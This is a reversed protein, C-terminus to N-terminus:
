TGLGMRRLIKEFRADSRLADLRRDSKAFITLMGSRSDCAKELWALAQDQEGLGAYILAVSYADVPGHEALELLERLLRRAETEAGAVAQAHALPAAAFPLGGMVQRATELEQIAEDFKSEQEYALGLWLRLLPYDPDLDLSELCRDIAQAYRRGVLSIMATMHRVIPSVPELEVARRSQQEAEEHRGCFALVLGFWYPAVWYSPDLEIARQFEKEAAAWDWDGFARLFALSTRGEALEPDLAVSAAAAAKAKAWGERPPFVGYITLLSYCDALGSYALAYGPDKEIAQQFYGVGKKMGDPTRKTWYYRGKLYLQYAESNETFRKALREKEEGSLKMRLSESIKRAIEEELAFIDALKRNYREGWLQAGEVVDVLETGVVLAEGRQIVRGTLVVRVNLERGAAQPDVDQGKYRFVTSRPTVRLQALKALSNIISETIGDSLYEADPDRSANAFPLVAISSIAKGSEPLPGQTPAASGSGGLLAKLDYALDRASQFREEPNKELCHSILRDIEIPIQTGSATLEKPADRLIASMTEMATKGPFARRGSVMEYLVCGLSFIDSGPGVPAGRVQEPSMYGATGMVTGAATKAAAATEAQPSILPKFRALGFDLLKVRGDSTLFINEPKLDRHIIEKSHAAAVGNALAIGTEAAKRWAMVGRTLRARLTEGELLETVVYSVGQETGVDFIALINPHSLAAVAKAEREFRALAEPDKALHEPLVKIAVERGLRPDRARYVEGMGGAGIPGLIEYPGLRAGAELSM